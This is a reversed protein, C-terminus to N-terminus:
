QEVCFTSRVLFRTSRFAGDFAGMTVLEVNALFSRFVLQKGKSIVKETKSRKKKSYLKNIKDTLTFNTICKLHTQLISSDMPNSQFLVTM